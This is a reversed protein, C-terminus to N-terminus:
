CAAKAAGIHPPHVLRKVPNAIAPDLARLVTENPWTVASRGAAVCQDEFRRDLYIREAHGL